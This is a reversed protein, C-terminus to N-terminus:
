VNRVGKLRQYATLYDRVTAKGLETNWYKKAYEAKGLDTTPIPERFRQFFVRAMVTAYRVDTQLLEATNEYLSHRSPLFKAVAFERKQNKTIFNKWIDDHTEPEMQFLGLAPGRIQKTFRLQSEHCAIMVLLDVADQSFRAGGERELVTLTKTVIDVLENFQM